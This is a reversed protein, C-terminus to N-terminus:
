LEEGQMAAPAPHNTDVAFKAYPTSPSERSEYATAAERVADPV